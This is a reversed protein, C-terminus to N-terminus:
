YGHCFFEDTTAAPWYGIEHEIYARINSATTIDPVPQVPEYHILQVYALLTHQLSVSTPVTFITYVNNPECIAHLNLFQLM